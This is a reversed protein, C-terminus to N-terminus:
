ETAVSPLLMALTNKLRRYRRLRSNAYYVGTLSMQSDGGQVALSFFGLDQEHTDTALEVLPFHSRLLQCRRRNPMMDVGVDHGGDGAEIPECCSSTVSQRM